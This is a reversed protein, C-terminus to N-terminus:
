QQKEIVCKEWIDQKKTYHFIYKGWMIMTNVIYFYIDQNISLPLSLLHTCKDIVDIVINNRISM